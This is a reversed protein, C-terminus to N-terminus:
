CRAACAQPKRDVCFRVPADDLLSQMEAIAPTRGAAGPDDATAVLAADVALGLKSQSIIELVGVAIAHEVKGVRLARCAGPAQLLLPEGATEARQRGGSGISYGTRHRVIELIIPAAAALRSVADFTHRM